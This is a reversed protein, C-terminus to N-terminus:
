SNQLFAMLKDGIRFNIKRWASLIGSLESKNLLGTELARRVIGVSGVVRFGQSLIIKRARVEDVLVVDAGIQRALMLCQTEGPGMWAPVSGSTSAPTQVKLWGQGIAERVARHGARAPQVEEVVAAPVFVVKWMKQLLDLHGPAGLAILVSTDVGAKM